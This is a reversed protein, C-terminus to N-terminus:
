WGHLDDRYYRWLTPQFEMIPPNHARFIKAISKTPARLRKKEDLSKLPEDTHM